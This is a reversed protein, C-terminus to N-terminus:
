IECTMECKDFYWIEPMQTRNIYDKFLTMSDIVAIIFADLLDTEIELKASNLASWLFFFGCSWSIHAYISCFSPM